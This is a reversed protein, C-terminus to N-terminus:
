RLAELRERVTDADRADPAITLYREYANRAEPALGMRESALGLGRWAAASRPSALTADHYLERARPIEGHLMASQAERILAATRETASETAAVSPAVEPPEDAEVPPRPTESASAGGRGGTGSGGERPTRPRGAGAEPVAATAIEPVRPTGEAAPPPEPAVVLAAPEAPAIPGPDVLEATPAPTPATPPSVTPAEGGGTLSWIGGGALLLLLLAALAYFPRRDQTPPRLQRDTSVDRQESVRAMARPALAVPPLSTADLAAIVSDAFARATTPRRGPVRELGKALAAELASPFERGTIQALTPAQKSVKDLLIAMPLGDFPLAGGSLFEFAMVALSYIDGQPGALDGRASEPPLYAATGIVHGVQTLRASEKGTTALGFDVLKVTERSGSSRAFFVNAPKVDRHVIGESHLADLADAIALLVKRIVDLPLPGRAMAADLDHGELFEMVLYPEGSPLRGLDFVEVVNPHRVRCATRAEREFRALSEADRLYISPLVKVAIRTQLELHHAQYVVGMGGKGLVKELRYRAGVVTGAPLEGPEPADIAPPLGDVESEGSSAVESDSPTPLLATL